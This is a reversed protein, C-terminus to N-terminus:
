TFKRYDWVQKKDITNGNQTLDIKIIILKKLLARRPALLTYSSFSLILSVIKDSFVEKLNLSGIDRLSNM